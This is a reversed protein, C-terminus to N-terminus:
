SFNRGASDTEPSHARQGGGSVKAAEVYPQEQHRLSSSRVIRRLQPTYVITLAIIVNLNSAGLAGMLAIAVACRTHSDSGRLYADPHSGPNQLLKRLLRHGSCPVPCCVWHAQGFPCVRAGYLVRIMLDRGFEDTGFPHKLGQGRLRDLLPWQMQSGRQCGRSHNHGAM